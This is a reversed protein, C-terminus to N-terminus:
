KAVKTAICTDGDGRGEVRLYVVTEFHFCSMKTDKTKNQKTTTTKRVFMAHCQYFFIDILNNNFCSCVLLGTCILLWDM